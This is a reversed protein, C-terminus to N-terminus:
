FRLVKSIVDIANCRIGSEPKYDTGFSGDRLTLEAHVCLNRVARDSGLSQLNQLTPLPLAGQIKKVTFMDSYAQPRVEMM